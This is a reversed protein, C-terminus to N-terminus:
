EGKQVEKVSVRRSLVTLERVISLTTGLKEVDM